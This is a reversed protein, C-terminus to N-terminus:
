KILLMNITRLVGRTQINPTSTRAIYLSSALGAADSKQPCSKALGHLEKIVYNINM